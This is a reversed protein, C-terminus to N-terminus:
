SIKVKLSNEYTLLVSCAFQACFILRRLCDEEIRAAQSPLPSLPVLLRCLRVSECQVMKISVSLLNHLRRSLLEVTCILCTDYGQATHKRNVYLSQVSMKFASM